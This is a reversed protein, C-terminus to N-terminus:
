KARQNRWCVPCVGLAHFRFCFRESAHPNGPGIVTVECRRYRSSLRGAKEHVASGGWGPLPPIAGVGAPPLTGELEQRWHAVDGGPCYVYM